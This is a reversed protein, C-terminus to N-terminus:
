KVAKVPAPLEAANPRFLDFPPTKTDFIVTTRGKMVIRLAELKRLFEALHPQTKFAEYFEAAKADGEARIRQAEAEADAIMNTRESDAKIRIKKAESKGEAISKDAFQKREAIMREFVKETITKPVGLSNIGVGVIEIGFSSIQACSIAWSLANALM